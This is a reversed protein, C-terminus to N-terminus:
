EQSSKRKGNPMRLVRGLLQEADKRLHTNTLSCFVAAFPCDWGEKLAQVTIIHRIKCGKSFLKGGDLEHREGMAITIEEAPVKAGETLYKKVFDVNFERNKNEEQYFAIPRIYEDEALAIKEFEACKQVALDITKEPSDSVEDVMVPLKLMEQEYLEQAKVRVLVNSNAAPTATLEIVASPRLTKTVDFSLATSYNYAEDVIMLPRVYSILNAFTNYRGKEDASFFDQPAIDAFCAGMEEDSQYVKRGEMDTVKFSQFTAVCINLKQKLDQPRLQRFESVEFIKVQKFEKYLFQSYFNDAAQLIKLTQIHIENSQVLWLVFPFEQEL